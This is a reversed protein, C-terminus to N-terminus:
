GHNPDERKPLTAGVRRMALHALVTRRIMPHQWAPGSQTHTGMEDTVAWIRSKDADWDWAECIARSLAEITVPEFPPNKV